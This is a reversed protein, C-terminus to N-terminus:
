KVYWWSYCEFIRFTEWVANIHKTHLESCVAVKAKCLILQNTKYLPPPSHKSRPVRQTRAYFLRTQDKFPHIIISALFYIIFIVTPSHETQSLRNTQVKFGVLFKARCLARIRGDVNTGKARWCVMVYLLRSNVYGMISDPFYLPRPSKLSNHPLRSTLSGCKWV